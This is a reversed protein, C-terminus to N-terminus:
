SNGPIYAGVAMSPIRDKKSGTDVPSSLWLVLRCRDNVVDFKGYFESDCVFCLSDLLNDAHKM